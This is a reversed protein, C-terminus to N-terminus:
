PFRHNMVMNVCARLQFRDQALQIWNTRDIGIERVDMKINDEWRRRPRGLARGKPGGLRFGTFVEGRGWTHWM